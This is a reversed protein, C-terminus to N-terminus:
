NCVESWGLETTRSTELSFKQMITSCFIPSWQFPISVPLDYHTKKPPVKFISIKVNRPSQVECAYKVMISALDPCTEIYGMKPRFMGLSLHHCNLNWSFEGWKGARVSLAMQHSGLQWHQVVRLVSSAAVPGTQLLSQDGVRLATECFVNSIRCDVM